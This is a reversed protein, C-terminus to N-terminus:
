TRPEHPTEGGLLPGLHLLSQFLAAGAGLELDDKLALSSLGLPLSLPPSKASLKLPLGGRRISAFVASSPLRVQTRARRRVRVPGIVLVIVLLLLFVSGALAM